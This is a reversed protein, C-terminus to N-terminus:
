NPAKPTNQTAITFFEGMASIILSDPINMHGAGHVHVFRKPENAKAALAKGHEFPIVDDKDGHLILIPCHIDQLKSLSDFPDKVMAHLGPLFWYTEAALNAVSTYASQLVVGYVPFEKAIQTAVGSGLSEGYLIIRPQEYNSNLWKMATRADKYIGEESPSGESKGYGRYSFAFVGYGEKVFAHYREMRTAVHSANGHFYLIIPKDSEPAHSWGSINLNDSTKLTVESFGPLGYEEPTKQKGSVTDAMYAPFILWRQLLFLFLYIAIIARPIRKLITKVAIKM